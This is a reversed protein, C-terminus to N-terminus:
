KTAKPAKELVISNVFTEVTDVDKAIEVLGVRKGGRLIEIQLSVAKKGPQPFLKSDVVIVRKSLTDLDIVVEKEQTPLDKINGEFILTGELKEVLNAEVHYTGTCAYGTTVKITVPGSSELFFRDTKTMM